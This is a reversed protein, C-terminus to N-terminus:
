KWWLRIGRNLCSRTYDVVTNIYGRAFTYGELPTIENNIFCMKYIM